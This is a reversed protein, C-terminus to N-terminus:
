GSATGVAFRNEAHLFRQERSRAPERAASVAMLDEIGPAILEIRVGALLRSLM